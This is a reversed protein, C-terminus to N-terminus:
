SYGMMKVAWEEGEIYRPHLKQLKLFLPIEEHILAHLLEHTTVKEFMKTFSHQTGTVMWVHNIYVRIRNKSIIKRKFIAYSCLNFGYLNYYPVKAKKTISKSLSDSKLKYQITWMKMFYNLPQFNPIVLWLFVDLPLM